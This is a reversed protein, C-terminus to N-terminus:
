RVTVDLVFRDRLVEGEEGLCTCALSVTAERAGLTELGIGRHRACRACAHGERCVLQKYPDGASPRHTASIWRRGDAPSLLDDQIAALVLVASSDGGRAM